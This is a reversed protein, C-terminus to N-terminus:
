ACTKRSLAPLLAEYFNAEAELGMARLLDIITFGEKTFDDGQEKPNKEGRKGIIGAVKEKPLEADEPILKLLIDLDLDVNRDELWLIIGGLTNIWAEVEKFNLTRIHQRFEVTPKDAKPRVMDGYYDGIAREGDIDLHLMSVIHYISVRMERSGGDESILEYLEPLSQTTMILKLGQLRQM